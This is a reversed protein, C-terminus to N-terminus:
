WRQGAMRCEQEDPLNAEPHHATGKKEEQSQPKGFSKAQGTYYADEDKYNSIYTQEEGYEIGAHKIILEGQKDHQRHNGGRGGEEHLANAAVRLAKREPRQFEGVHLLFMIHKQELM